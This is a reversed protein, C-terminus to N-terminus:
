SRPFLQATPLAEPFKISNQQLKVSEPSAVMVAKRQLMAETDDPNFLDELRKGSKHKKTMDYLKQYAEARAHQLLFLLHLMM